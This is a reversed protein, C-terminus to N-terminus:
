LKMMKKKYKSILTICFYKKLEYFVTIFYFQNFENKALIDDINTGRIIEYLTVVKSM